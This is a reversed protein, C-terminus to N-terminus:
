GKAKKMPFEESKFKGNRIGEIKALLQQDTELTYIIRQPYDHWINEATFSNKKWFVIRFEVTDIENQDRLSPVYYAAGNRIKLEITESITKKGKPSLIYSTASLTSDDSFVWDEHLSNKGIQIEWNGIIWDFQHISIQQSFSQFSILIFLLPALRKM